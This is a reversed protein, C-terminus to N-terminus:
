LDDHVTLSNHVRISRASLEHKAIAWIYLMYVTLSESFIMRKYDRFKNEDFGPM